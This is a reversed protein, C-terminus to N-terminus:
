PECWTHQPRDRDPACMGLVLLALAELLLRAGYFWNGDHGGAPNVVYLGVLVGIAALPGALPLLRRPGVTGRVLEAALLGALLVVYVDKALGVAPDM